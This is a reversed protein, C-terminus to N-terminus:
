WEEAPLILMAEVEEEVFEIEEESSEIPVIIRVKELRAAHGWTEMFYDYQEPTAKFGVEEYIWRAVDSRFGLIRRHDKCLITVKLGNMEGSYLIRRPEVERSYTTTGWLKTVYDVFVRESGYMAMMPSLREKDIGIRGEGSILKLLGERCVPKALEESLPRFKFIALHRAYEKEDFFKWTPLPFDRVAFEWVWNPVYGKWLETRDIVGAKVAERLHRVVVPETIMMRRAIEWIKYGERLWRVAEATRPPIVIEPREGRKPSYIGEYIDFISM